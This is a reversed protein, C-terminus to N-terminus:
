TTFNLKIWKGLFFSCIIVVTAILLHELIISFPNRQQNIGIVYNYAVMLLTGYCINVIVATKLSFVLLPIIFSASVFFKAFFTILTALWIEKATHVNESEEAIHIGLADSMADAVAITVISSLVATTSETGSYVGVMLGISTILGSTLGFSLGVDVSHKYKKM